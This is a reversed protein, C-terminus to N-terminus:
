QKDNVEGRMDAGCHPCFKFAYEQYYVDGDDEDTVVRSWEELHIGCQSCIFGDVPHLESINEGRKREVVDAAPLLDLWKAVYDFAEKGEILTDAKTRIMESLKDADIYRPM